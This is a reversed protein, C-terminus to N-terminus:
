LSVLLEQKEFVKAKQVTYVVIDEDNINTATEMASRTLDVSLLGWGSFPVIHNTLKGTLQFEDRSSVM